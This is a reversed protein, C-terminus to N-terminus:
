GGWKNVLAVADELTTLPAVEGGKASNSVIITPTATDAPIAAAYPPFEPPTSPNIVRLFGGKATVADRLTVSNVIAATKPDQTSVDRVVLVHLGDAKIPAEVTIPLVDPWIDPL